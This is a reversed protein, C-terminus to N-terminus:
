RQEAPHGDGRLVLSVNIDLQSVVLNWLSKFDTESLGLHEALRTCTDRVISGRLNAMWRSVTSQSVNYVRAIRGFSLGDVIHMRLVLRSRDDLIQLAASLADQFADRYSSKMFALEVDAGIVSVERAARDTVRARADERRLQMLALRHATIGVFHALPGRGSYSLLKPDANPKGLLLVEWLEQHLDELAPKSAQFSVLYRLVVPWCHRQFVVVADPDAALAACALYLDPAREADISEDLSAGCRALHAAFRSGDLSITKWKSRGLAFVRALAEDLETGSLVTELTPPVAALYCHALAFESM